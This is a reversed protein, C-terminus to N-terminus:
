QSPPVRNMAEIGPIYPEGRFNIVNDYKQCNELTRNCGAKIVFENSEFPNINFPFARKVSITIVGDDYEYRLVERSIGENAGTSCELVGNDFFGTPQITAAGVPLYYIDDLAIKRRESGVSVSSILGQMGYEVSDITVTSGTFKCESDGFEKVRCYRTTVLGADSSLRAMLGRAEANFSLEFDKFESLNGKFHVLEGLDPVDWPASFVEVDAFDWRGGLVDNREFTGDTYMGQMELTASEDLKQEIASPTIGVASKFVVGSHGPLEMDRTNSTFGITDLPTSFTAFDKPTVKIFLAMRPNVSNWRNWFDTATYPSQINRPIHPM